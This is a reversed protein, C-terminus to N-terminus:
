AQGDRAYRIIEDIARKLDKGTKIRPLANALDRLHEREYAARAAQELLATSDRSAGRAERCRRETHLREPLTATM